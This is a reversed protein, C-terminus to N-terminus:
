NRWTAALNCFQLLFGPHVPLTTEKLLITSNIRGYVAANLCRKLLYTACIDSFEPEPLTGNRKNEASLKELINKVQQLISSNKIRCRGTTIYDDLIQKEAVTLSINNSDLWLHHFIKQENVIQHKMRKSTMDKHFRYKYLTDPLNALKAFKGIEFYLQRDNLSIFNENYRIGHEMLISRRLMITPHLIPAKFLLLSKIRADDFPAQIVKFRNLEGFKKYATGVLGVEPHAQLYEYQKQLRGPLSLDDHNMIAIYEARALEVLRNYSKAIGLTLANEHYKIRPDNFTDIAAKLEKNSPSDNLIIFEFDTETQCLISNIAAKLHAIHTNWIPMLVSIKPM